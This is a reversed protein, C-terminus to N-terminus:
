NKDLVLMVLCVVIVIWLLGEMSTDTLCGFSEVVPAAVEEHGHCQDKIPEFDTKCGAQPVYPGYMGYYRHYFRERPNLNLRNWLHWEGRYIGKQSQSM